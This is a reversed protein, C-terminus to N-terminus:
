LCALFFNKLMVASWWFFAMLIDDAEDIAELASSGLTRGFVVPWWLSAMATDDAADMAELVSSAPWFNSDIRFSSRQSDDVSVLGADDRWELGSVTVGHGVEDSLTLVEGATALGVLLLSFVLVGVGVVKLIAVGLPIGMKLFCFVLDSAAMGMAVRGSSLGMFRRLLSDLGAGPGLVELWLVVEGRGGFILTLRAGSSLAM